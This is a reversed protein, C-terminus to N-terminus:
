WCLGNGTDPEHCIARASPRQGDPDSATCTNPGSGTLFVRNRPAVEVLYRPGTIEDDEVRGRCKDAWCAVKKETESQCGIASTCFRYSCAVLISLLVSWSKFLFHSWERWLIVWGNIHVYRKSTFMCSSVSSFQESVSHRNRLNFCM